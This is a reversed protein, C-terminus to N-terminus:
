LSYVEVLGVGVGGNRGSVIATHPGPPLLIVIASELDNGPALTTARIETEQSLNTQANTKWNDNSALLTGQGDRLELSPDALPNSVGAQSLSPGIARVVVRTQSNLIFGGIMVNDNTDVFGRTSINALKSDGAAELDYADVVAVGNTESAGRVIGTYGQNPQLTTILASELDSTPALNTTVIEAEQSQHTQDNFKWNDNSAILTGNHDRLELRPDSLFGAIGFNRLSPGLARVIITKTASGTAIFGGILANEGPQVRLRTSVNLPRGGGPEFALSAPSQVDGDLFTRGGNPTVIAIGGAETDSVYLNGNPAFALGVARIFGSAFLTPAGAPTFKYVNPGFEAVYVNDSADVAVGQPMSMGSAFTSRTGDPSFKYVNGTATDSALLNGTHDFALGTPTTLGSAFTNRSGDPTFKYIAHDTIDTVYVNGSHDVALGLPRSLASTFITKTGDPAIKYIVHLDVDSLLLNGARDFTVGYPHPSMAFSTGRDGPSFKIVQPHDGTTRFGAVVYLDGGAGRGTVPPSFFAVFFVPVLRLLCVGICREAQRLKM